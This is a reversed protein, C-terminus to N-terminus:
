AIRARKWIRSLAYIGAAGAVVGYAILFPTGPIDVGIWGFMAGRSMPYGAVLGLLLLATLTIRGAPGFSTPGSRWRSYVAVVPTEAKPARRVPEREVRAYCRPCWELDASLPWGCARCADMTRWPM